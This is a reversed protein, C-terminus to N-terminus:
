VEGVQGAAALGTEYAYQFLDADREIGLKKMARVKQASVTQKARNLQAAIEGISLGSTYLRIVETERPTLALMLNPVAAPSQKSGNVNPSFYQAGAHVAHVAAILHGVDDLKSLVGHAGSRAIEQFIAPNDITTLVIVKMRPWTRLVYQLLPLGDVFTGGPMVYDTILIDCSTRSLLSILEDTRAATGAIEITPTRGLEHRVGSLVTPHDDSLIVRVKM